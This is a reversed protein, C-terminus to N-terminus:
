ELVLVPIKRITLSQLEVYHPYAGTARQWWEEREAEDVERATLEFVKDGDQVTVKPNARFNYVGSPNKPSRGISGVMASRGDEEVRM